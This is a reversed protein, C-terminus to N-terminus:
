DKRGEIAKVLDGYTPNVIISPITVTKPKRVKTAYVPNPGVRICYEIKAVEKMKGKVKKRVLRRRLFTSGVVHVSANLHSMVSPMLRPGIEPDLQQEPDAEDDVNFVREQALFVVEIGDDALDRFRTIMEKLEGSVQGWGQKTMTGWDGVQKGKRTKGGLKKILALEQAGTTTDIGVSKFRGPNKKLYWYALDLDDYTQIDMVEVGKIGVLSDDGKDNMDLVLCPKPFTGLLTTKGSGQRGHFVWSRHKRM